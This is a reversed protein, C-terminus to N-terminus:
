LGAEALVQSLWDSFGASAFLEASLVEARAIAFDRVPQQVGWDALLASLPREGECAFYRRVQGRLAEAGLQRGLNHAFLPPCLALFDGVPIRQLDADIDALKVAMVHDFAGQQLSSLLERGESSGLRKRLSKQFAEVAARSFDQALPRLAAEIGLGGVVSRGVDLLKGARARGAAGLMGMVGAGGGGGGAAGAAGAAGPLRAVFGLLVDQFVPALLDVLLKPQLAGRLWLGRPGDPDGFVAIFDLMGGHLDPPVADGVTQDPKQMVEVRFQEFGPGVHQEVARVVQAEGFAQLTLESLTDADVLRSLPQSLVHDVLLTAATTRLAGHEGTLATIIKDASM